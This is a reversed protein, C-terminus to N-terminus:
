DEARASVRQEIDQYIRMPLSRIAEEFCEIVDPSYSNYDEQARWLLISLLLCSLSHINQKRSLLGVGEFDCLRIEASLTSSVM